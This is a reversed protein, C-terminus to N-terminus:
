PRVVCAGVSGEPGDICRLGALALSLELDSTTALADLLLQKQALANYITLDDTIAHQGVSDACKNM